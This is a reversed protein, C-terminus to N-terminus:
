PEAEKNDSRYIDRINIEMFGEPREVPTFGLGRYLAHADRTVLLWRRLRQLEPTSMICEMMWRALGRKRHAELVFVDALYAFTACDSIVRAFGVQGAPTYIGFSISGAISRAVSDRSIGRAWYSNRLFGHVIDLQIRAPDNSVTYGERSWEQLAIV